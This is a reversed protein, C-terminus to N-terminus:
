PVGMFLIGVDGVSRRFRGPSFESMSHNPQDEKAEKRGGRQRPHHEKPGPTSVFHNAWKSTIQDAQPGKLGHVRTQDTPPAKRQKALANEDMIVQM